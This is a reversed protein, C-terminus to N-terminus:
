VSEEGFMMFSLFIVGHSAGDCAGRLPIMLSLFLVYHPAGECASRVLCRSASSYYMILLEKVLV